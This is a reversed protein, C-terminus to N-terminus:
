SLTPQREEITERVTKHKTYLGHKINRRYMSELMESDFASVAIVEVNVVVGRENCVCVSTIGVVRSAIDQVLKVLTLLHTIHYM